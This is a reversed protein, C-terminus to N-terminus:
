HGWGNEARHACCRWHIRWSACVANKKQCWDFLESGVCQDLMHNLPPPPTGNEYWAYHLTRTWISALQLHAGVVPEACLVLVTLNLPAAHPVQLINRSISCQLWIYMAYFLNRAGWVSICRRFLYYSNYIGKTCVINASPKDIAINVLGTCASGWLM